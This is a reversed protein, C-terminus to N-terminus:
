DRGAGAGGRKDPGPSPTDVFLRFSDVLQFPSRKRGTNRQGVALLSGSEALMRVPGDDPLEGITKVVDRTVPLRGYRLARRAKEELIVGPLFGLADGLEFGRLDSIDRDVLKASPYANAKDYPGIRTRSLRSIHAGIGLRAGFDRALSRVYTGRSCRVTCTVHPLDIALVECDHIKVTRKEVEVTGGARAVQYLRKGEKKLASFAPPTFEYDGVFSEATDYIREAPFDPCPTDRTVEGESDLTTTEVGLRIVFNYVKELNMFHEVARTALGACILLVGDALPDLTGTHGVKRIRTARRFASVVDFSSLGVSKDIVFMKHNFQGEDAVERNM